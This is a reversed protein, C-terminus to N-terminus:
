FLNKHILLFFFDCWNFFNYLSRPCLSTNKREAWLHSYGCQFHLNFIERDQLKYNFVLYGHIMWFYNYSHSFNETNKFIITRELIRKHNTVWLWEPIRRTQLDRDQCQEGRKAGDSSWAQAPWKPSIDTAMPSADQLHQFFISFIFQFELKVSLGFKATSENQDAVSLVSKEGHCFPNKERLFERKRWGSKSLCLFEM